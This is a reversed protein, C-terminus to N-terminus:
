GAYTLLKTKLEEAGEFDLKYKQSNETWMSSFGVKYSESCLRALMAIILAITRHVRQCQGEKPSPHLSIKELGRVVTLKGFKSAYQIYCKLLM